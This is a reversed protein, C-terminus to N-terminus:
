KAEKNKANEDNTKNGMEVNVPAKSNSLGGLNNLGELNLLMSVKTSSQSQYDPEKRPIAYSYIKKTKKFNFYRLILEDISDGAVNRSLKSNGQPFKITGIGYGILGFIALVIYGIMKLGCMSFIFYFILGILMAAATYLLSKTTFILLIRNEGKLKNSPIIYSGM